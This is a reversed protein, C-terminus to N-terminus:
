GGSFGSQDLFQSPAHVALRDVLRGIKDDFDVKEPHAFLFGNTGTRIFPIVPATRMSIVEVLRDVDLLPEGGTLSVVKLGTVLPPM